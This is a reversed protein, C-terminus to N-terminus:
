FNLPYNKFSLFESNKDDTFEFLKFRDLGLLKEKIFLNFHKEHFLM